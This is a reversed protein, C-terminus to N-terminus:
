PEIRQRESELVPRTAPPNDPSVHSHVIKWDNGIKTFILTTRGSATELKGDFEQSQKWKYSVYASRAGLMEVRVGSTELSVNKTKAYLSQRNERMQNWGLTVSGNNNFFLTRENNDYVSMVKPADVQRIGENLRDFAARVQAEPGPKAAAAAAKQATVSGTLVLLALSCLLITKM